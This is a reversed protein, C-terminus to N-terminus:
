IKLFLEEYKLVIKESSYKDEILKSIKERNINKNEFKLLANELQISNTIDIVDGKTSNNIIERIGGKCDNVISYLGCYGAELLVNPFGEYRSSLIFLDANKMYIYPNEQFGLFKVKNQINKEVCLKELKERESGDGIINLIYNNNNVESFSEILLDFGKQLELRGACLINKKSSDIFPNEGKFKEVIKECDIPNSIQYIKEETINLYKKLDETMDNSQSVIKSSNKYALKLLIKRIFNLKVKSLVNIERSIFVIENKFFPAVFLGVITNLEISFTLVIKPKLKELEAKIRMGAYRSRKINLISVGIEKRLEKCYNGDQNTLIVHVEFKKLDLNNLLNLAVREAGGGGLSTIIFCIKKM